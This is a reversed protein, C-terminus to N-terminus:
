QELSHWSHLSWDILLHKNFTQQKPSSTTKNDVFFVTDLPPMLDM